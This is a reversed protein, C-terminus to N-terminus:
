SKLQPEELLRVITASPLDIEYSDGFTSRRKPPALDPFLNRVEEYCRQLELLAVKSITITIALEGEKAAVNKSAMTQNKTLAKKLELLGQKRWTSLTRENLVRSIYNAQGHPLNLQNYLQSVKPQQNDLLREYIQAVREITQETLSLFRKTGSLWNIWESLALQALKELANDIKASDTLGFASAITQAAAPDVELSLKKSPM